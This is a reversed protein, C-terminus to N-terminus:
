MHAFAAPAPAPAPAPATAPCTYLSLPPPPCPPTQKRPRQPPQWRLKCANENRARTHLKNKAVCGEAATLRADDLIGKFKCCRLSQRRFIFSTSTSTSASAPSSALASVFPLRRRIASADLTTLLRTQGVRQAAVHQRAASDPVVSLAKQVFAGCSALADWMGGHTHTHARSLSSVLFTAILASATATANPSILPLLLQM